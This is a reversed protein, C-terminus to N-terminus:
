GKANEKRAKRKIWAKKLKEITELTPKYGKQAESIKKKTELSKPKARGIALAARQTDTPPKGKKSLSMNKKHEESYKGRPRGAWYESMKKISEQTHRFGKKIESMKKKAEESFRHGLVSGATRSNNYAPFDEDLYRQETEILKSSDRVIELVIFDFAEKGYKNWASQLHKSHHNNKRLRYTHQRWRQTIDVASGVYRNGNIKNVIAYIGSVSNEM